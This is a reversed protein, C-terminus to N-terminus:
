LTRVMHEQFYEGKACVGGGLKKCLYKERTSVRYCTDEYPGSLVGGKRLRAGGGM